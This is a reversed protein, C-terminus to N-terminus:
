RRQFEHSLEITCVRLPQKALHTQHCLLIVHGDCLILNPDIALAKAAAELMLKQGEAAKMNGGAGRWYAAALLEYAEAFEPDLEIAQLLFEEADRPGFVNLSAKAKLFLAYAETNETPRGRTPVASVHIQLADIIATAVEDQVAFLDRDKTM